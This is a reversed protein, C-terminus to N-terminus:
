LLLVTSVCVPGDCAVGAGMAKYADDKDLLRLRDGRNALWRDVMERPVDPVNVVKSILETVNPNSVLAAEARQRPTRGQPDIHDFFGLNIMARAHAAALRTLDERVPLFTLGRRTRELNILEELRTAMRDMEEDSPQLAKHKSLRPDTAEALLTKASDALDSEAKGQSQQEQKRLRAAKTLSEWDIDKESVGFRQEIQEVPLIDLLRYTIDTVRLAVKMARESGGHEEVWDIAWDGHKHLAEITSRAFMGFVLLLLLNLAIGWGTPEWTFRPAAFIPLGITIGLVLVLLRDPAELRDYLYAGLVHGAVLALAIWAALMLITLPSPIFRRIIRLFRTM